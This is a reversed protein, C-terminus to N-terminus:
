LNLAGLATLISEREEKGYDAWDEVSFGPLHFEGDINATIMKVDTNLLRGLTSKTGSYYRQVTSNALLEQVVGEINIRFRDLNQTSGEYVRIGALEVKFEAIISQLTTRIFALQKPIDLARPVTLSEVSLVLSDEDATAICYYITKPSVRIGISKM